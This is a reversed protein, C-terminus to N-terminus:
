EALATEAAVAAGAAEPSVVVLLAPPELAEDPVAVVVTVGEAEAATAM